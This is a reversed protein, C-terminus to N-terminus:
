INIETQGSRFSCYAYNQAVLADTYTCDHVSRITACDSRRQRRYSKAGFKKSSWSWNHMSHHSAKRKWEPNANQKPLNIRYTKYGEKEDHIGAKESDHDVKPGYINIKLAKSNHYAGDLPRFRLQRCVLGGGKTFAMLSHSVEEYCNDNGKFVGVAKWKGGEARAQVEYRTVWHGSGLGPRRLFTIRPGNYDSYSRIMEPTPLCHTDAYGLTGFGLVRENQGLDVECYDSPRDNRSPCWVNNVARPEISTRKPTLKSARHKDSFLTPTKSFAPQLRMSYPNDKNFAERLPFYVNGEIALKRKQVKLNRPRKVGQLVDGIIPMTFQIAMSGFDYRSHVICLNSGAAEVLEVLENWGNHKNLRLRKGNHSIDIATVSVRKMKKNNNAEKERPLYWDVIELKSSWGHSGACCSKARYKLTNGHAGAHKYDNRDGWRRQRKSQAYQKSGDFGIVAM